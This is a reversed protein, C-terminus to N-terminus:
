DSEQRSFAAHMYIDEDPLSFRHGFYKSHDLFLLDIKEDHEGVLFSVPFVEQETLAVVFQHPSATNWGERLSPAPVPPM